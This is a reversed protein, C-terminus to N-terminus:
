MEDVTAVLSELEAMVEPDIVLGHLEALAEDPYELAEFLREVTKPNSLLLRCEEAGFEHRDDTEEVVIVMKSDAQVLVNSHPKEAKLDEILQDLEAPRM